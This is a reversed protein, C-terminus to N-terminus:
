SLSGPNWQITNIDFWSYTLLKLSQIHFSVLSDWFALPIRVTM